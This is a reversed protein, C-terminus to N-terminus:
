FDWKLQFKSIKNQHDLKHKMISQSQNFHHKGNTIALLANREKIQASNYNEREDPLVSVSRTFKRFMLIHLIDAMQWWWWQLMENNTTFDQINIKQSHTIEAFADDRGSFIMWNHNHLFISVHDFTGKYQDSDLTITFGPEWMLQSWAKGTELQRSVRCLASEVKRLYLYWCLCM